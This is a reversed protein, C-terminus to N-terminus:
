KIIVKKGNKIYIGGRPNAVRIGSLTYYFGDDAPKDADVNSIGTITDIIFYPKASATTEDLELYCKNEKNNLTKGDPSGWYFGLGRETDNALKYICKGTEATVDKEEQTGKLLNDKNDTEALKFAFAYEKPEGAILLAAGKPVNAGAQYKANVVIKNGSTGTITYGTLGEPMTYGYVNNYYTAVKADGVKITTPLADANVAGPVTLKRENDNVDVKLNIGELGWGVIAANLEDETAGNPANLPALIEAADGFIAESTNNMTQSDSDKSPFPLGNYSYSGIINYGGSIIDGGKVTANIANKESSVPAIISNAVKIMPKGVSSHFQIEAPCGKNAITSNVIILEENPFNDSAGNLYICGNRGSKNNVVATNVLIIKNASQVCLASGLGVTSNTMENGSLLCRELILIGKDKNQSTVRIAAGRGASKNNKFVCDTAHVTSSYDFLAAGGIQTGYSTIENNSFECNELKVEACNNFYLATKIDTNSNENSKAYVDKFSIGRFSILSKIQTTGDGFAFIGNKKNASITTLPESSIVESHEEGTLTASYGGKFILGKTIPTVTSESPVTYDGAAFYFVDGDVFKVNKQLDTYFTEFAMANDWSLGDRTGSAEIRIYYDEAFVSVPIFLGLALLTSKLNM